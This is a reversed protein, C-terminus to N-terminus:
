APCAMLQNRKTRTVAGENMKTQLVSGAEEGRGKRRQGKGGKGSYYLVSVALLLYSQSQGERVIRNTRTRLGCQPRQAEQKEKIDRM